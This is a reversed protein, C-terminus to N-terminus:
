ARWVAYDLQTTGLDAPSKLSWVISSKYIGRRNFGGNRRSLNTPPIGSQLSLQLVSSTESFVVLSELCLNSLLAAREPVASMQLKGVASLFAKPM